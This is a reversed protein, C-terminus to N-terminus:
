GQPNFAFLRFGPFQFDPVENFSGGLVSPSQELVSEFQWVPDHVMMFDPPYLLLWSVFDGEAVFDAVEDTVLGLIDIIRRQSYWGITGIEVVAISADQETNEALWLGIEKYDERAPKGLESLLRPEQLSLGSIVFVTIEAIEMIEM